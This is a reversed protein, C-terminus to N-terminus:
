WPDIPSLEQTPPLVPGRTLIATALDRTRAPDIVDDTGFTRAVALPSSQDGTAGLGVVRASPWMVQIPGGLFRGFGGFLVQAVGGVQGVIVTMSPVRIRSTASAIRAAHRFLATGAARGVPVPGTSDVLTLLPLGFANCLAMFRATKDCGDATLGGGDVRPDTAIIGIARGDLRALSTIANPAWTPRLEFLSGEDALNEMILRMPRPGAQEAVRRLDAGVSARGEVYPVVPRIFYSGYARAEGIADADTRVIREAAGAAEHIHVGGIEEPTYELGTAAKVLPPGAVGIASGETAIIVDCEGLLIAHGAFARGLALGVLPVRGSLRALGEFDGSSKSLRAWSMEQARAGGGESLLFVPADHRDALLVARSTKAHSNIGQTGGLVTYDYSIVVSTRGHVHGLGVVVADAPGHLAPNAPEVLAGSEIFEANEDLLLTVRERATLRGKAHQKAVADPRQPDLVDATCAALEDISM